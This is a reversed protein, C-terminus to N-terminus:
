PDHPTPMAHNEDDVCNRLRDTNHAAFQQQCRAIGSATDRDSSTDLPGDSRTPEDTPQSDTRPETEIETPQRSDTTPYTHTSM